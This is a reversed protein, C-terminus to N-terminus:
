KEHRHVIHWAVASGLIVGATLLMLTFRVGSDFRADLTRGLLAGAVGPLAISWGITGLVGVARWFARNADERRKLRELDRTLSRRADPRLDDEKGRADRQKV